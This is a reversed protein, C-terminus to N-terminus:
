FFFMELCKWPLKEQMPIFAAPGLGIDSGISSTTKYGGPVTGHARYRTGRERYRHILDTVNTWAISCQHPAALLNHFTGFQGECAKNRVQAPRFSEKVLPAESVMDDVMDGCFLPRDVRDCQLGLYKLLKREEESEDVVPDTDNDDQYESLTNKYSVSHSTHTFHPFM